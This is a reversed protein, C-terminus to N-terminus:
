ILRVRHASCEEPKVDKVRQWISRVVVRCDKVTLWISNSTCLVVTDKNRLVELRYLIADVSNAILIVVLHVLWTSVKDSNKVRCIVRRLQRWKCYPEVRESAIRRCLRLEVETHKGVLGELSLSENLSLTLVALLNNEVEVGRQRLYVRQYQVRYRRLLYDEVRASLALIREIYPEINSLLRQWISDLTLNGVVLVVRHAVKYSCSLRDLHSPLSYLSLLLLLSALLLLLLALLSLGLTLLVGRWLLLIRKLELTTCRILNVRLLSKVNCHVIRKYGKVRCGYLEVLNLALAIAACLCLYLVVKHTIREIDTAVKHTGLPLIICLISEVDRLLTHGINHTILIVRDAVRKGSVVWLLERLNHKSHRTGVILLVNDLLGVVRALGLLLNLANLATHM